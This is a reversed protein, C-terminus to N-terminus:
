RILVDQSVVSYGGYADFHGYCTIMQDDVLGTKKGYTYTQPSAPDNDYTITAAQVRYHLDVGNVTIWFTGGNALPSMVVPVGPKDGFPGGYCNTPHTVLGHENPPPANTAQGASVIVAAAVVGALLLMVKM